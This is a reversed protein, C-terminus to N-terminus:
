WTEVEDLPAPEESGYELKQLSEPLKTSRWTACRLNRSEGSDYHKIWIIGNVKIRWMRKMLVIHIQQRDYINESGNILRQAISMCGVCLRQILWLYDQHWLHYLALWSWPPSSLTIRKWGHNRCFGPFQAQIKFVLSHMFSYNRTYFTEM